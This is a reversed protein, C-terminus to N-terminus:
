HLLNQRQYSTGSPLAQSEIIETGSVIAYEPVKKGESKTSLSGDIYWTFDPNNLSILSIHSFHPMKKKKKKKGRQLYPHPPVSFNPILTALSLTPCHEFSFHPFELLTVNILQVHSASLLTM